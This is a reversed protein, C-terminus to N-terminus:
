YNILGEFARMVDYEDYITMEWDLLEEWFKLFAQNLEDITPGIVKLHRQWQRAVKKSTKWSRTDHGYGHNKGYRHHSREKVLDDNFGPVLRRVLGGGCVPCTHAM